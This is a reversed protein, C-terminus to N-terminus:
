NLTKLQQTNFPKFLLFAVETSSKINASYSIAEL